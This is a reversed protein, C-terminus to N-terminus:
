EDSDSGDDDHKRKKSYPQRCHPYEHNKEYNHYCDLCVYQGCKCLARVHKKREKCIICQEDLIYELKTYLSCYECYEDFALNQCGSTKCFKSEFVPQVARQIVETNSESPEKTFKFDVHRKLYQRVLILKTWGDDSM